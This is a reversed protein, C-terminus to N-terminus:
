SSITRAILRIISTALAAIIIGVIAYIVTNRANKTKQPDGQSTIFNIGAIIIVIISVGVVVIFFWGMITDLGSDPSDVQPVSDLDGPNVTIQGFLNSMM